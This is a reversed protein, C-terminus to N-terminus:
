SNLFLQALSVTERLEIFMWQEPISKVSSSMLISCHDPKDALSQKHRLYKKSESYGLLPLLTVFEFSVRNRNLIIKKKLIILNAKM